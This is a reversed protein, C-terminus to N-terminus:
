DDKQWDEDPMRSRELLRNFDEEALRYPPEQYIRLHDEEDQDQPTPPADEHMGAREGILGWDAVYGRGDDLDLGEYLDEVQQLLVSRKREPSFSFYDLPEEWVVAGTRVIEDAEGPSIEPPGLVATGPMIEGLRDEKIHRAESIWTTVRQLWESTVASRDRRVLVEAFADLDLFVLADAPVDTIIGPQDGQEVLVVDKGGASWRYM